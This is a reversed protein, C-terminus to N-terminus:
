ILVEQVVGILIKSMTICFERAAPVCVAVLSLVVLLGAFVFLVIRKTGTVEGSKTEIM